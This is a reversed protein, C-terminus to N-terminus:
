LTSQKSQIHFNGNDTEPVDPHRFDLASCGVTQLWTLAHAYKVAQSPLTM